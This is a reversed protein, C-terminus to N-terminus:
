IDQRRVKTWREVLRQTEKYYAPDKDARREALVFQEFGEYGTQVVAEFFRKLKEEDATRVFICISLEEFFGLVTQMDGRLKRQDPTATKNNYKPRGFDSSDIDKEVFPRTSDIIARFSPENWRQILKDAAHSRKEEIGKLYAFLAFAGGTITALFAISERDYWRYHYMWWLACEALAFLCTALWAVSLAPLNIRTPM